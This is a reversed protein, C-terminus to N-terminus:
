ELCSHDEKPLTAITYLRWAGMWTQLNDNFHGRDECSPRYKTWRCHFFGENQSGLPRVNGHVSMGKETTIGLLANCWTMRAWIRFADNETLHSLKILDTVLLAGWPDIASHEASILTGGTTYYGYRTFESTQPYLADYWFMWSFFYYAAKQARELWLPEKTEEYIDIAARLFPYATEKDVCLCDLAGATCIFRDLDRKYYFDMAKIATDLYRKDKITKYVETLGMIMFGGAGGATQKPSGDVNWSKGFGYEDSYHNVAFEALKRSFELYEPKDINHERYLHYSRVLETMAWGLNCSDPLTRKDPNEIFNHSYFPYLLGNEWQTSVYGDLIRTATELLDKDDKKFGDIAMLRATMAGQDAWGIEYRSSYTSLYTNEPNEMAVAMKEGHLVGSHSMSFLKDSLHGALMPTGHCDKIQNKFFAIGLDWIRETSLCPTKKMPFIKNCEEMLDATAYNKYKPQCVYIYMYLTKKGGPVLFMYEEYPDLMRNKGGYTYPMESVPHFIRHYMYGNEDKILSASSRLSIEDIDSVFTAVGHNEDETMTCSPIGLRDYAFVWPKGDRTLGTPTNSGGFQNGNYNFGPFVYNDAKFCDKLEFISKFRIRKDTTNTITRTVLISSDSIFDFTDKFLLGEVTSILINNHASIIEAKLEEGDLVAVAPLIEAYLNEAVKESLMYQENENKIIYM